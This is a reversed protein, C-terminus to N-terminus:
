PPPDWESDQVVNRTEIGKVQADPEAIRNKAGCDRNASLLSAGKLSPRVLICHPYTDKELTLFSGNNDFLTNSGFVWTGNMFQLTVVERYSFSTKFPYRNRGDNWRADLARFV